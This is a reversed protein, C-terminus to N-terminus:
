PVVIVLKEAATSGSRLRLVYAGPPFDRTSVHLLGGDTARHIAAYRERGLLDHLSLTVEAASTNRYEVALMAGVTAPNPYVAGILLSTPLAGADVGLPTRISYIVQVDGTSVPTESLVIRDVHEGLPLATTNPVATMVTHGAGFLPSVDLWLPVSTATWSPTLGGGTWVQVEQSAPLPGDREAEFRLLWPTLVVGIPARQMLQIGHECAPIESLGECETKWRIIWPEPTIKDVVIRLLWEASFADGPQLAPVTRISDEGPALLLMPPPLIALECPPTAINGTNRLTYQVQLPDPLLAEYYSDVWATDHGATSCTISSVRPAGGILVGRECATSSNSPSYEFLVRFRQDAPRDDWTAELEWRPTWTEGPLLDARSQLAFNSATLKARQLMTSDLIARLNTLTTDSPNHLTASVDFREPTFKGSSIDYRVSDPASMDCQLVLAPAFIRDTCSTVSPGTSDYATVTMSVSRKFPYAPVRIHWVATIMGGSPLVSLPQEVGNLVEVKEGGTFSITAHHLPQPLSGTNRFEATVLVSDETFKLGSADLHLSDQCVVSCNVEPAAVHIRIQRECIRDLTDAEVNYRVRVAEVTSHTPYPWVRLRWTFSTTSDEEIWFDPRRLSEGSELKLYQSLVLDLRLNRYYRNTDSQNPIVVTFVIPKPNYSNDDTRFHVTDPATIYCISGSSGPVPADVACESVVINFTDILVARIQFPRAFPWSKIEAKWLLDISGNGPVPPPKVISDPPALLTVGADPPISLLVANLLAPKSFLNGIRVRITITDKLLRTRDSNLKLSPEVSLQCYVETEVIPVPLLPSIRIIKDKTPCDEGTTYRLEVRLSATDPLQDILPKMHWELEISGQPALPARAQRLPPSGPALMTGAPLQLEVVVSDSAKATSINRVRCRVVFPDPTSIRRQRDIRLTDLPSLEVTLAGFRQRLDHFVPRSCLDPMELRMLQIDYRNNDHGSPFGPTAPFNSSTQYAWTSLYVTTGSLSSWIGFNLGMYNPHHVTNPGMTTSFLVEGTGPDIVAYLNRGRDSLPNVFAFKQHSYILLNLLIHGCADVAIGSQNYYDWTNSYYQRPIHSSFDLRGYRDIRGVAGVWASVSGPISRILPFNESVSQAYFFLNGDPDFCLNNVNGWGWDYPKNPYPYALNQPYPDDWWWWLQSFDDNGSGGLFTSYDIGKLDPSFKTFVLDTEGLRHPQMPNVVPYEPSETNGAIAIGGCGDVAISHLLENGPGGFCSAYSLHYTDADFKMIIADYGGRNRPQLADPTLFPPTITTMGLAYITGASDCVMDVFGARGSDPVASGYILTGSSDFVILWASNTHLPQFEADPTMLNQLSNSAFHLVLNDRKGILSSGGSYYGPGVDYGVSNLIRANDPDLRLIYFIGPNAPHPLPFDPSNTGGHIRLNGARDSHIGLVWDSDEGGLYCNYVLTVRFDKLVKADGLSVNVGGDVEELKPTVGPVGETGSFALQAAEANDFHMRFDSLDAGAKVDIDHRMASADRTVRVEVGPWAQEFAIGRYQTLEYPVFHGDVDKHFKAKPGSVEMPAISCKSSPAVLRMGPWTPAAVDGNPLSAGREIGVSYGERGFSVTPGLGMSSATIREDWQGENMVFLRPIDITSINAKTDPISQGSAIGCFLLLCILLVFAKM